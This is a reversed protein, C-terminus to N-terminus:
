VSRDCAQKWTALVAKPSLYRQLILNAVLDLPSAHDSSITISQVGHVNVSFPTTSRDSSLTVTYLQRPNNADSTDNITFTSGTSDQADDGYLTGSLTAYRGGLAYTVSGDGYNGDGLQLGREIPTRAHAAVGKGIVVVNQPSSM